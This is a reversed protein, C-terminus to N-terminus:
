AASHNNIICVPINEDTSEILHEANDAVGVHNVLPQHPVFEGNSFSYFVRSEPDLAVLNVWQNIFWEYTDANSKITKLVVDPKQEVVILLRLPDHVEIMQSPLGPRLDGDTGNAVGILGMVNHPLKTGAGLKYNDVRSFFYELNIGGCVPAAAKLIGFLYKGEPDIEPNYSNLFARRDLFLHNTLDRRGVICLSNTAHNLEPRPEFLSVSRKKVEEHVVPADQKTNTIIFRRSREKANLDLAKLFVQLNAQNRPKNEASLEQEDYLEIEDRSTDHLAGVFQTSDPIDIGRSRLIERVEKHNAAFSAVRANVSGPRGSCAGCDYGAYYTNNVSSSGHGVIYVLPAFDTVLGTSRLLGEVRDAMEEVTYGVQLGHVAPKNPKALITLSAHKDMHRFSYSTAPGVTPRFINFFLKAASWFGLTQSILWGFLLSHSNKTFSADTSKVNTNNVEKILYKPTLPAPCVKTFFKGDEPQFYFEMNFFGPTGYTRAGPNIEEIYRRLSCERDDICFFAQFAADPKESDKRTLATSIGTLVQDYYSWEMAEQWIAYVESLDTRNVNAFLQHPKVTIRHGLPAWNEGFKMDLSNIELLLEVVILDHLSIKRSDLLTGPNDEVVSVMGSWGPHAFQQDFLYNKYLGPDEGVLIKLLHEIKCNTHFLLNKVRKSKFLGGYSHSELSKISSLFGSQSVPFRRIAIGQDLYNGILRFLIPHVSKDPNIKYLSKWQERLEGIRPKVNTDFPHELCLQLWKECEEIGHRQTITNKLHNETISGSQYRQRYEDLRLYVKYGFIANAKRLADHFSKHQFAHLTNHHIFDKLPAQQPLYHKLDHLVQHEDFLQSHQSM